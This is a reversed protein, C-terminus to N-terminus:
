RVYDTSYGPFGLVAAGLYYSTNMWGIERFDTRLDDGTTEGFYYDAAYYDAADVTVMYPTWKSTATLGGPVDIGVMAHGPLLFVCSGSVYANPGEMGSLASFLASALISTDECDGKGRYLTEIPYLWYESEGFQKDDTTYTATVVVFALIYDAFVRPTKYKADVLPDDLIKEKFEKWLEGALAKITDSVVVYEKVAYIGDAHLDTRNTSSGSRDISSNRAADYEEGPITVSVSYRIGSIGEVPLNWSYEVTRDGSSDSSDNNFGMFSWAVALLIAVVAIVAVIRGTNNSRRPVPSYYSPPIDADPMSPLM